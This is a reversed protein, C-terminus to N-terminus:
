EHACENWRAPVLTRATKAVPGDIVEVFGVAGDLVRDLGGAPVV